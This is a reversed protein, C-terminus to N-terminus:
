KRLERKATIADAELGEVVEWARDLDASPSGMRYSSPKWSSRGAVGRRLGKKLARNVETKLSTSRQAAREKLERMMIDPIDITTRM